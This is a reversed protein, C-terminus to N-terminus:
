ICKAEWNHRKFLPITLTLSVLNEITFDRIPLIRANMMFINGNKELTFTKGDKHRIFGQYMNLCKGERLVVEFLSGMGSLEILTKIFFAEKTEKDAKTYNIHDATQNLTRASERLNSM